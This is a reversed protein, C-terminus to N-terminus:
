RERIAKYLKGETLRNAIRLIQKIQTIDVERKGKEELAVKVAFDTIKMGGEKHKSNKKQTRIIKNIGKKDMCM